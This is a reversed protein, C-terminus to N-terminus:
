TGGWVLERDLQLIIVAGWQSITKGLAVFQLYLDELGFIRRLRKAEAVAAVGAVPNVGDLEGEAGILDGLSRRYHDGNREM